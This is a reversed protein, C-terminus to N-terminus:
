LGLIVSVQKNIGQKWDTNNIKLFGWRWRRRLDFFFSQREKRKEKQYKRYTNDFEALELNTYMM